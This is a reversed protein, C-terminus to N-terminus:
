KGLMKRFKGRLDEINKTKVYGRSQKFLEDDRLGRMYRMKLTDYPMDLFVSWEKITMTHGEYSIVVSSISNVPKLLM